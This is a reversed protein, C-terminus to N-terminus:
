QRKESWGPVCVRRGTQTEEVRVQTRYIESLIEATVVEHTMGSLRTLMGRAEDLDVPKGFISTGLAVLTDAGLVVADPETRAVAFTKRCANLLTLEAATLFDVTLEREHHLAIFAGLPLGQYVTLLITPLLAERVCGVLLPVTRGPREGLRQETRMVHPLAPQRLARIQQLAIEAFALSREHEDSPVAM